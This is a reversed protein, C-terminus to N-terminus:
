LNFTFKCAFNYIYTIRITGITRTQYWCPKIELLTGVVCHNAFSLGNVFNEQSTVM